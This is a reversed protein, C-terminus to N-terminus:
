APSLLIARLNKGLSVLNSLLDEVGFVTYEDTDAVRLERMYDLKTSVGNELTVGIGVVYSEDMM